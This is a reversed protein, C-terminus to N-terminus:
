QNLLKLVIEKGTAISFLILMKTSNEAYSRAKCM